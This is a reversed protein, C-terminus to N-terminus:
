GSWAAPAYAPLAGSPLRAAFAAAYCRCRDLNSRSSM